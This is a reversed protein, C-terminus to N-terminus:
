RACRTWPAPVALDPFYSVYLADMGELVPAWTSPEEWDFRPTGARTGRVGRASLRDAVRRGTKGNAGLVPTTM